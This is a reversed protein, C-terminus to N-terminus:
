RLVVIRLAERRAGQRLHVFYVGSEVHEPVAFHAVHLGAAPAPVAARHLRRGAVDFLELVADEAGALAFRLNMPSRGPNPWASLRQVSGAAIQEPVATSPDETIAIHQGAAVQTLLQRIGSPWIIEVSDAETASGLGFHVDLNQSNYGTLPLVQRSQWRPAGGIVAHMRVRAGIATTNSASGALRLQLWNGGSTDNRFLADAQNLRNAVFADLDGDADIDALSCGFSNGASTALGGGAVRTFTYSPAGSNIYLAEAEGNDNAVLLDLDGDNDVDGWASGVANAPTVPFEGSSLPTFSFGPSGSNRYLLSVQGLYNAAFLDLDGDNDFDGWSAGLTARGDLINQRVFAMAGQNVFLADNQNGALGVFLDM